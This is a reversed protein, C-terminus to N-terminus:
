CEAEQTIARVYDLLRNAHILVVTEHGPMQDLQALAEPGTLEPGRVAVLGDQGTEYVAETADPGATNPSVRIDPTRVVVRGYELLLGRPVLVITAGSPDTTRTGQVAALGARDTDFVNPCPGNDCTGARHALRMGTEETIWTSGSNDLM